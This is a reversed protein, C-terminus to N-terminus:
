FFESFRVRFSSVTRKLIEHGRSRYRDRCHHFGRLSDARTKQFIRRRIEFCHSLSGRVVSCSSARETDSYFVNRGTMARISRRILGVAFSLPRDFLAHFIPPFEIRRLHRCSIQNATAPLSSIWRTKRGFHFLEKSFPSFNGQYYIIFPM